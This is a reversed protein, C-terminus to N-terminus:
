LQERKYKQLNCSPYKKLELIWVSSFVTVERFSYEKKKKKKKKKASYPINMELRQHHSPLDKM